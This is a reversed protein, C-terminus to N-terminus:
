PPWPWPRTTAASGASRGGPGARAAPRGDAPRGLFRRLDDAFDIATRYREAPTRAMAKLCIAELDRPLDPRLQRPPAPRGEVSQRLVEVDTAGDYPARGALMEYLIVGLAYVDAPPGIDEHRGAAQEPAMYKPTGLIQRTGTESPGGREALKALGFDVM